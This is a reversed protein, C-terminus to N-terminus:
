PVQGRHPGPEVKKSIANQIQSNQPLQGSPGTLLGPSLSGSPRPKQMRARHVITM